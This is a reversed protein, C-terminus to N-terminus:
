GESLLCRGGANGRGETAYYNQMNRAGVQVRGPIEGGVLDVCQNSMSRYHHWCAKKARGLLKLGDEEMGFDYPSTRPKFPRRAANVKKRQKRWARGGLRCSRSKQKWRARRGDGRIRFFVLRRNRGTIKNQKVWRPIGQECVNTRGGFGCWREVAAHNRPNSVRRVDGVGVRGIVV